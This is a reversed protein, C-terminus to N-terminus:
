KCSYVDTSSSASRPDDEMLATSSCQPIGTCEVSLSFIQGLERCNSTKFEWKEEVLEM